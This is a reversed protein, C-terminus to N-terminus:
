PCGTQQWGDEGGPALQKRNDMRAALPKTNAATWGRRWPSVTHQWGDEGGPVLQKSGDMRAAPALQKSGDMRAALPKSYAAM